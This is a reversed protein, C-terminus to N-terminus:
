EQYTAKNQEESVNGENTALDMAVENYLITLAAIEAKCGLITNVDSYPTQILRKIADDRRGKTKELLYTLASRNMSIAASLEVSSMKQEKM